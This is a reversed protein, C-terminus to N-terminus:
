LICFQLYVSIAYAVFPHFTGLDYLIFMFRGVALARGRLESINKEIAAKDAELSELTKKGKSKKQAAEASRKAEIADLVKQLAAEAKDAKANCESRAATGGHRRHHGGGSNFPDNPSPQVAWKDLVVANDPDYEQSPTVALWERRVLAPIVSEIKYEVQTLLAKKLNTVTPPHLPRDNIGGWKMNLVNDVVDYLVYGIKHRSTWQLCAADNHEDNTRSLGDAIAKARVDKLLQAFTANAAALTTDSM